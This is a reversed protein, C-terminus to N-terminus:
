LTDLARAFMAPDVNGGSVVAIVTDRELTQAAGYSVTEGKAARRLQVIRAELTIVPRMPNPRDRSACGGYIAIGPRTVDFLFGDGLLVGASNALSSDIDEFATAVKQFSEHQVANMPHDARDGCALHSMVLVPSVLHEEMNRTRFALAEEVTLGLRNMGTDVGIACPPHVGRERGFQGWFEIQDVSSLIPILGAEVMTAASLEHVGNLVFVDAKQTIRRVAVGEEPLAVFFSECGAELLAPVVHEVCLGYADAKVVASCRAPKSRDALDRWNAVLADLDVSLRGGALRPDAGTGTVRVSSSGSRFITTM